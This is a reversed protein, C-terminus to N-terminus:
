RWMLKYLFKHNDWGMNLAVVSLSAVINMAFELNFETELTLFGVLGSGTSARDPRTLTHSSFWERWRGSCVEQKGNIKGALVVFLLIQAIECVGQM